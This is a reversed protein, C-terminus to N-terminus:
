WWEPLHSKTSKYEQMRDRFLIISLGTRINLYRYTTLCIKEQMLYKDGIRHEVIMLFNPWHTFKNKVPIYKM